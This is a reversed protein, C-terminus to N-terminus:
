TLTCMCNLAAVRLQIKKTLVTYYTAYRLIGKLKAMCRVTTTKVSANGKLPTKNFHLTSVPNPSSQINEDANSMRRLNRRNSNKSGSDVVLLISISVASTYGITPVEKLFGNVQENQANDKYVCSGHPPTARIVNVQSVVCCM